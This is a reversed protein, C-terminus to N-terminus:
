QNRRSEIESMVLLCIMGGPILWLLVNLVGLVLDKIGM